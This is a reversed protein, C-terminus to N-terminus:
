NYIAWGNVTGNAIDIEYSTAVHGDYDSAWGSCGCPWPITDSFTATVDTATTSCSFNDRVVNANTVRVGTCTWNGLDAPGTYSPDTDGTFDMSYPGATYHTAAGHSSTASAQGAVALQGLGTAAIVVAVASIKRRISM